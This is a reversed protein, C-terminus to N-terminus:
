VQWSCPLSTSPRSFASVHTVGISAHLMGLLLYQLVSNNKTYDVVTHVANYLIVFAAFAKDDEHAITNLDRVITTYQTQM